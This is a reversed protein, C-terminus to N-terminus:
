WNKLYNTPDRFGGFTVLTLKEQKGFYLKQKIETDKQTYTYTYTERREGTQEKFITKIRKASLYTRKLVRPEWTSLITVSPSQQNWM